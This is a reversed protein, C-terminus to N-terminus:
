TIMPFIIDNLIIHLDIMISYNDRDTGSKWPNAIEKYIASTEEHWYGLKYQKIVGDRCSLCSM